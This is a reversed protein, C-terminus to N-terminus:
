NSKEYIQAGQLSIQQAYGTLSFPYAGVNPMIVIFKPRDISLGQLTNAFGDKYSTIHYAVTYKGPPLKNTLYYVQANNGWIFINDKPLASLNIFSAIEYDRPTNADFFRQYSSANKNGVVFSIFNQYYFATKIYFTFSLLVVIFSAISIVGALKSFNKNLLFLGIM